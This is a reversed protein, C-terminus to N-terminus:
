IVSATNYFVLQKKYFPFNATPYSFVSETVAFVSMKLQEATM